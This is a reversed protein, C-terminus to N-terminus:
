KGKFEPTRKELFAMAANRHDETGLTAVMARAEGELATALDCHAARNINAKMAALALPARLAIGAAWAATKAAFDADPEIRNILGLAKAEPANIRRSSFYIEKTKAPGVLQTMYWSGGFDGSVGLAGFAPAFFASECAIRLDCALAISMGAGAAPGPLAAIVPKPFDYIRQSVATQAAMLVRVMEEPGADARLSSGLSTVDGGACFAGEAGTLVLVRVQADAELADLLAPLNATMGASLANRRAPNNLTVTAVHGTVEAILDPTGTELKRTTM